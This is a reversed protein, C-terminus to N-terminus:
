EEAGPEGEMPASNVADAVIKWSGDAQKKWVTLTKSPVTVSEGGAVGLGWKGKGVVYALDGEKSVDTKVAEAEGGFGPLDNLHDVRERIGQKGVIMPQNIGLFHAGEAFFSMYKDVDQYSASWEDFAAQVAAREAALDVAPKEPPPPPAAACVVSLLLVGVFPVTLQKM